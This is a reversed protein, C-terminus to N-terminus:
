GKEKPSPGGGRWSKGPLFMSGTPGTLLKQQVTGQRSRGRRGREDKEWQTSLPHQSAAVEKYREGPGLFARPSQYQRAHAHSQRQLASGTLLACLLLIPGPSALVAPSPKRSAPATSRQEPVDQEARPGTTTSLPALLQFPASHDRAQRAVPAPCRRLPLLVREELRLKCKSHNLPCKWSWGTGKASPM